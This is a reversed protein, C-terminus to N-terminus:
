LQKCISYLEVGTDVWAVAVPAAAVPVLNAAGTSNGRLQGTNQVGDDLQGDAAAAAKSPLNSACIVNKGTLGYASNTAGLFGGFANLPSAESLQATAVSGTTLQALRLHQWFYGTEAVVATTVWPNTVGVGAITGNGTGSTAPLATWRAAATNDDGPLFRFRDQYTYAAASTGNLDAVVRKVRSQEIMEQGKLVGGLLLGIIVLVIAIEVLTFGSQTRKIYKM